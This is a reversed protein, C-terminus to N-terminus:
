DEAGMAISKVRVVGFFSSAFSENRCPLYTFSNEPSTLESNFDMLIM